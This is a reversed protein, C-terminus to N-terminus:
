LIGMARLTAPERIDYIDMLDDMFHEANHEREAHIEADKRGFFSARCGEVVCEWGGDIMHALIMRM